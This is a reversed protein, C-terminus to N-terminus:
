VPSFSVLTWNEYDCPTSFWAVWSPIVKNTYSNTIKFSVRKPFGNNFSLRVNLYIFDLCIIWIYLNTDQNGASVLSKLTHQKDKQDAKERSVAKSFSLWNSIIQFSFHFTLFVKWHTKFNIAPQLRSQILISSALLISVNYIWQPSLCISLECTRGLWPCAKATEQEADDPVHSSSLFHPTPHPNPAFSSAGLCQVLCLEKRTDLINKWLKIKQNRKVPFGQM